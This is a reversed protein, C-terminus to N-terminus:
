GNNVREIAMTLIDAFAVSKNIGATANDANLADKDAQTLSLSASIEVTLKDLIDIVKNVDTMKKVQPRWAAGLTEAEAETIEEIDSSETFSALDTDKVVGICYPKSADNLGEYAIIQIKTSDYEVPYTNQIKGQNQVRTMKVKVIKAM